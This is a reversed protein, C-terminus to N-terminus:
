AAQMTMTSLRNYFVFMRRRGAQFGQLCTKFGARHVNGGVANFTHEAQVVAGDNLYMRVRYPHYLDTDISVAITANCLYQSESEPNIIADGRLVASTFVASMAVLMMASRKM